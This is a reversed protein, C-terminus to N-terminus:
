LDDDGIGEFADNEMTAKPSTIGSNRKPDSHKRTAERTRSKGDERTEHVIGDTSASRSVSIQYSSGDRKLFSWSGRRSSSPRQRPNTGQPRDAGQKKLLLEGVMGQLCVSLLIAQSSVVTIWQLKNKSMLYEFSLELRQHKGDSSQSNGSCEGNAHDIVATTIRWCRIRTVRFSIEKYQDQALALRFNLERGGASILVRTDPQPYDCFCPAFQLYGYYKLTRALQLYEKKSGKAQLTALQRQTDKPVVVWGREVDSLTQVYALNLAVRDDMLANDWGSDWYSKRIVICHGPGASTQSLYPAEFNELRKQIIIDADTRKVLFLAFYCILDPPLGIERAVADMVVDTPDTSLVSVAVKQWNMLFVDFDVEKPPAGMTEQQASLLFGTFAEDSSVRADQSALQIYKELFGRREETQTPTLPLLKKPPFPPLAASGFVKKLQDHLSHLQKYRVACHFAGNVHINYAKFVAYLALELHNRFLSSPGAGVYSVCVISTSAIHLPRFSCSYHSFM